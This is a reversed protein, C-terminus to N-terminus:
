TAADTDLLPTLRTLLATLLPWNETGQLLSLSDLLAQCTAPDPSLSPTAPTSLYTTIWALSPQFVLGEGCACCRHDQQSGDEGELDSELSCSLQLDQACSLCYPGEEAEGETVADGVLFYPDEPAYGDVLAMLRTQAHSAELLLHASKM